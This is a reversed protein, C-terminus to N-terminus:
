RRSPLTRVGAFQIKIMKVTQDQSWLKIAGTPAKPLVDGLTYGPHVLGM